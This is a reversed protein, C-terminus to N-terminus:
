FPSAWIRNASGLASDIMASRSCVERFRLDTEVRKAWPSPVSPASMSSGVSYSSREDSRRPAFRLRIRRFRIWDVRRDPASASGCHSHRSRYRDDDVAMEILRRALVGPRILNLPLRGGGRGVVPVLPNSRLAVGRVPPGPEQVVFASDDAQDIVIGTHAEIDSRREEAPEFTLGWLGGAAHDLAIPVAHDPAAAVAIGQGVWVNVRDQRQGM